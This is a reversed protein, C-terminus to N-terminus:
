LSYLLWKALNQRSYIVGGFNLWRSVGNGDDTILLWTLMLISLILLGYSSRKILKFDVFAIVVVLVIGLTARTVSDAWPQWSGQSASYLAMAGM